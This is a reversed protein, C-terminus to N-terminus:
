DQGHCKELKPEVPRRYISFKGFCFLVFRGAWPYTTHPYDPPCTCWKEDFINQPVFHAFLCFANGTWLWLAADAAAAVAEAGPFAFVLLKPNHMMVIHPMTRSPQMFRYIASPTAGRHGSIRAASAAGSAGKIHLKHMDDTGQSDADMPPNPTDGLCLM